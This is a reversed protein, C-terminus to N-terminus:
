LMKPGQCDEFPICQIVWGQMFFYSGLKCSEKTESIVGASLWLKKNQLNKELIVYVVSM